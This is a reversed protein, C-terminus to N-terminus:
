FDMYIRLKDNKKLVVVIPSLWSAEEVLAIFSTSLFKNLDHKVIVVYNQNMQYKIQHALPNTTNFEIRHRVIQPPIGM